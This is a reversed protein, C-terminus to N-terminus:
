TSLCGTRPDRPGYIMPLRLVTGPLGPDGMIVQEVLIKEYHYLDDDPGKARGRYPYLRRRLPANESLPVPEIPGPELGILRGYARYVDQSNIVVVRRALAKFTCVVNQAHRQTAPIIDLVVQPAFDTFQESFDALDRRDSLIHQVSQPLDAETHGRHFVAVEHGM